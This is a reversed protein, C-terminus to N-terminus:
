AAVPELLGSMHLQRVIGEIADVLERTREIELSAAVSDALDDLTAPTALLIEFSEAALAELRHVDGSASDYLVIDGDWARWSLSTNDSIRWREVM